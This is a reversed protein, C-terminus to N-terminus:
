SRIRVVRGRRDVLVAEEGGGKALIEEAAGEQAVAIATSLADARTATSALVSVNAWGRAPRGSHPDFLHHYKAQSDFSGALPSSTAVARDSLGVIAVLDDRDPRGIGIRWPNGMAKEGLGRFEGINVLVHPFGHSRLKEVVCDTAYGQAIGNLTASMDPAEFALQKPSVSLRRWGILARARELAESTGGPDRFARAYVGWLPQVTVDFAGDSIRSVDAATALIDVLDPPPDRLSGSKNLMTLASDRRYLSFISEIRGIEAVCDAIARQARAQDADRITLEAEAGLAFGYWRTLATAAFASPARLAATGAAMMALMRRRSPRSPAVPNM